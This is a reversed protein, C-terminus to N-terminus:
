ASVRDQATEKDKQLVQVKISLNAVSSKAQDREEALKKMAKDHTTRVSALDAAPIFLHVPSCHIVCM